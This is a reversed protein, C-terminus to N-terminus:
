KQSKILFFDILSFDVKLCFYWSSNFTLNLHYYLIWLNTKHGICDNLYYFLNSISIHIRIQFCKKLFVKVQKPLIVVVQYLTFIIFKPTQIFINAQGMRYHESYKKAERLRLKEKQFIFIYKPIANFWVHLCILEGQHLGRFLQLFRIYSGSNVIM